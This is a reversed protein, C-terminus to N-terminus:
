CWVQRKNQLIKMASTWTRETRNLVYKSSMWQPSESGSFISPKILNSLPKHTHPPWLVCVTKPRVNPVNILKRLLTWVHRGFCKTLLIPSPAEVSQKILFVRWHLCAISYTVIHVRCDCVVKYVVIVYLKAQTKNPEEPLSHPLLIQDSRLAQASVRQSTLGLPFM